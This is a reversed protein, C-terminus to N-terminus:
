RAVEFAVVPGGCYINYKIAVEVAQAATAGMAMAGRALDAGSGFAAHPGFVTQAIPLREYEVLRGGDFVILNTWDDGKQFEPWKAPDAGNIYWDRLALGQEAQGVVALAGGPIRWCKETQIFRGGNTAQSDAAM